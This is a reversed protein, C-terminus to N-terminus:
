HMHEEYKLVVVEFRQLVSYSPTMCLIHQIAHQFHEEVYLWVCVCVEHSVFYWGKWM